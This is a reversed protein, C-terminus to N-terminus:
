AELVLGRERDCGRGGYPEPVQFPILLNVTDGVKRIYTQKLIRPLLIKPPESSYFPLPCPAYLGKVHSPCLLPSEQSWKHETSTARHCVSIVNHIPLHPWDIGVPSGTQVM